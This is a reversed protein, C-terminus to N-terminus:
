VVSPINLIFVKKKKKLVTFFHPVNFMEDLIFLKPAPSAAWHCVSARPEIELM